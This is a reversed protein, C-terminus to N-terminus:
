TLRIGRPGVHAKLTLLYRTAQHGYPYSPIRIQGKEALEGLKKIMEEKSMM